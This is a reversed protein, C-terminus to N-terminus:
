EIKSLEFDFYEIKKEELKIFDLIDKDVKICENKNMNFLAFLKKDIFRGNSCGYILLKDRTFPLTICFNAKINLGSSRYYDIKKWGSLIDDLKLVEIVDSNKNKETMEGEMGFLAFLECTINNYYINANARSNNLYPLKLWQKNDLDMIECSSNKEGGILILSDFNELYEISHYAHEENLNPLKVLINRILDYSLVINIPNGCNDAGGIVYLINDILIHRCGFPFVSYGHDVKSLNIPIKFIQNTNSDFYHILNTGIIPKAIEKLKNFRKTYNTIFSASNRESNNNNTNYRDFFKSFLNLISYAFFRQIIRQNLSINDFNEQSQPNTKIYHNTYQRRKNEKNFSEKSKYNLYKKNNNNISKYNTIYSKKSTKTRYNDNKNLSLNNNTYTLFRQNQSLYNNLKDNILLKPSNGAHKQKKFSNNLNLNNRKPSNNNTKNQSFKMKCYNTFYYQNYFKDKGKKYKSDYIGVLDKIKDLNGNKKIIKSLLSKFNNIFENYKKTRLKVELYYDGFKYLYPNLDYNNRVENLVNNSRQQINNILFDIDFKMKNIADLVQLNKNDCLNMLEFNMLFVTNELDINKIIKDDEYYNTNIEIKDNLKEENEKTIETSNSHMTTINFFLKNRNYYEEISLKAECFNNKLLKLNKEIEEFVLDIERIKENKINELEKQLEEISTILNNKLIEKKNQILFSSDIVKSIEKFFTTDYNICSERQILLHEKHDFVGCEECVSHKCTFCYYSSETIIKNCNKNHNIINERFHSIADFERLEIPKNIKTKSYDEMNIEDNKDENNNKNQMDNNNILHPDIDNLNKQEEIIM